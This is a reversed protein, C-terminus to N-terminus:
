IPRPSCRTNSTAAYPNPALRTVISPSFGSTKTFMSGSFAGGVLNTGAVSGSRFYSRKCYHRSNQNPRNNATFALLSFVPEDISYFEVVLRVVSAIANTQDEVVSSGRLSSLMPETRRHLGM